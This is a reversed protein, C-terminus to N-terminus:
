KPGIFVSKRIAQLPEGEVTEVTFIIPYSETMLKAKKVKVFLDIPSIGSPDLTYTKAVNVLEADISSQLM